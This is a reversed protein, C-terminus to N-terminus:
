FVNEHQRRDEYIAEEKEIQNYLNMFKKRAREYQKRAASESINTIYAIEEYSKEEYIRLVLINKDKFTLQKFVKKIISDGFFYDDENSSNEDILNEIYSREFLVIRNKRKIFDYSLNRAIRYLWALFATNSKYQHIKRIATVFTDQLIDEADEKSDVICYIYHFLQKQYLKVLIGFEKIDGKKIATIVQEVQIEGMMVGGKRYKLTCKQSNCNKYIYSNQGNSQSM